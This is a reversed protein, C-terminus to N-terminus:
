VNYLFVIICMFSLGATPLTCINDCTMDIYSNSYMRLGSISIQIGYMNRPKYLIFGMRIEPNLDFDLGKLINALFDRWFSQTRMWITKFLIKSEDTPINNKM